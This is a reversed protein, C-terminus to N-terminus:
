KIIHVLHFFTAKINIFNLIVSYQRSSKFHCRSSSVNPCKRVRGRLWEVLPFFFRQRRGFAGCTRYKLQRASFSQPYRICVLRGWTNSETSKKGSVQRQNIMQAQCRPRAPCLHISASLRGIAVFSLSYDTTRGPPPRQRAAGSADAASYTRFWPSRPPTM